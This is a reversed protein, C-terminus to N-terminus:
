WFTNNQKHTLLYCNILEVAANVNEYTGCVLLSQSANRIPLFMPNVGPTEIPMTKIACGTTRRIHNLRYGQLGLLFSVELKRLRILKSTTNTEKRPEQEGFHRPSCSIDPKLKYVPRRWGLPSPSCQFETLSIASKSLLVELVISCAKISIPEEMMILARYGFASHLGSMKVNLKMDAFLKRLDFFGSTSTKFEIKNYTQLLTYIWSVHFLLTAVSLTQPFVVIWLGVSQKQLHVSYTNARNLYNSRQHSDKENGTIGAIKSTRRFSDTVKIIQESTMLLEIRKDVLVLKSRFEKDLLQKAIHEFEYFFSFNEEKDKELSQLSIHLESNLSLAFKISDDIPEANNIYYSNENRTNECSFSLRTQTTLTDRSTLFDQPGAAVSTRHFMNHVAHREDM